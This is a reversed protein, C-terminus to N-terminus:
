LEANNSADMIPLILFGTFLNQSNMGHLQSSLVQEM